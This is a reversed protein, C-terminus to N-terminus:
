KFNWESALERFTAEFVEAQAVCKEFTKPYQAQRPEWLSKAWMVMGDVSVGGNGNSLCEMAAFLSKGEGPIHVDAVAEPLNARASKKSAQSYSPYLHMVVAALVLPHGPYVLDNGSVKQIFENGKRKM